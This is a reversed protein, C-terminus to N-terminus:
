IKVIRDRFRRAYKEELYWGIRRTYIVSDMLDIRTSYRREDKNM